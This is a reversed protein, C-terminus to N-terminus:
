LAMAMIMVVKTPLWYGTAMIIFHSPGNTSIGCLTIINPHDLSALFKAEMSLDVLGKLYSFNDLSDPLLQKLVFLGGKRKHKKTLKAINSRTLDCTSHISRKSTGDLKELGLRLANNPMNESGAGYSGSEADSAPNEDQNRRFVSRFSNSGISTGKQNKSTNIKVKEISIAICFGGRGLVRGLRLEDKSFRPIRDETTSDFFTSNSIKTEVIGQATKVLTPKSASMLEDIIQSDSNQHNNKRSRRPQGIVPGQPMTEVNMMM